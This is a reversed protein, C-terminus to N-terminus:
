RHITSVLELSSQDSSSVQEKKRYQSLFFCICPFVLWEKTETFFFYTLHPSPTVKPCHGFSLGKKRIAERLSGAQQVYHHLWMPSPKSKVPSKSLGPTAPRATRNLKGFFYLSYLWQIDMAAVVQWSNSIAFICTYEKNLICLIHPNTTDFFHGYLHNLALIGIMGNCKVCNRYHGIELGIFALKHTM